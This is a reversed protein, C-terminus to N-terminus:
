EEDESEKDVYKNIDDTVEKDTDEESDEAHIYKEEDHTEKKTRTKSNEQVFHNAAIKGEFIYDKMDRGILMSIGKEESAVMYTPEVTRVKLKMVEAIDVNSHIRALYITDGKQYFDNFHYKGEEPDPESVINEETTVTIETSEEVNVTDKKTKNRKEIKALVEEAADQITGTVNEVVQKKRSM